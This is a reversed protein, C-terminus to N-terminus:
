LYAKGKETALAMLRERIARRARAFAHERHLLQAEWNAQQGFAHLAFALQEADVEPVFHGREKALTVQRLLWDLWRESAAVLKDRVAGPRGDFEAAVAYFFCGGRDRAEEISAIWEMVVQHLRPLGRETQDAPTIVRKMFGCLAADLTALQLEEKSGFHAFLGAKSMGVEKALTAISLGELGIQRAKEVAAELIRERPSTARPETKAETSEM